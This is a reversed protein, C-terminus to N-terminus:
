KMAVKTQDGYQKLQARCSILQKDIITNEMFLEDNEKEILKVKKKLAVYKERV